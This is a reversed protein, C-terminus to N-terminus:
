VNVDPRTAIYWLTNSRSHGNGGAADYVDPSLANLGKWAARWEGITAQSTLVMISWGDTECSPNAACSDNLFPLMEKVWEPSDRQESAVTLPMLQIGYCLYPSNGFWTQEQALMSWLMGVVRSAYIEPYIRTVNPGAARVHWYTQATRMETAM